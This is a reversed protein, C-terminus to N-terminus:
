AHLQAPLDDLQGFREHTTSDASGTGAAADLAEKSPYVESMVLLTEGCKDELPRRALVFGTL